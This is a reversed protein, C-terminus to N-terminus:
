KVVELKVGYEALRMRYQPVFVTNAPLKCAEVRNNACWNALIDALQRAEMQTDCRAIMSMIKSPIKVDGGERIIKRIIAKISENAMKYKDSLQEITWGDEWEQYMIKNRENAKATKIHGGSLRPRSLYQVHYYVTTKPFGVRKGIEALPLGEYFLRKFEEIDKDTPRSEPVTYSRTEKPSPEVNIRGDIIAIWKYKQEYPLRAWDLATKNKQTMYLKKAADMPHTMRLEGITAVTVIDM